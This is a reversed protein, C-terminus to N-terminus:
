EDYIDEEAKKDQVDYIRFAPTRGFHQLVEESDEDYTVAIKMQIEKLLITKILYSYWM